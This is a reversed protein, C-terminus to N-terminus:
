KLLSCTRVQLQRALAEDDLGQDTPVSGFEYNDIWDSNLRRTQPTQQQQQQPAPSLPPATPPPYSPSQPITM